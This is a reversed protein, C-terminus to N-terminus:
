PCDRPISPIASSNCARLLDLAALIAEHVTATLCIDCGYFLVKRFDLDMLM